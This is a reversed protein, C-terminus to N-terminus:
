HKERSDQLMKFGTDLKKERSSSPNEKLSWLKFEHYNGQYLHKEKITRPAKLRSM